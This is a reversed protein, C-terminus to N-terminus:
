SEVDSVYLQVYITYVYQLDAGLPDGTGSLVWHPFTIRCEIVLM